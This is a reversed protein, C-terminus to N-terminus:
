AIGCVVLQKTSSQTFAARDYSGFRQRVILKAEDLLEDIESAVYQRMPVHIEAIAAGVREGQEVLRWTLALIRAQEDYVGSEWVELARGRTDIFSRVAHAPPYSRLHDPNPQYIDFAFLSNGHMRQRVGHFVRLLDASAVVNQLTNYCSMIFDFAGPMDISRVDGCIWEIRPERQRAVALMNKSLDIGVVRAERGRRAWLNHAVPITITGTGCGLDLVSDVHAGVLGAFFAKEATRDLDCLDWYEAFPDYSVPEPESAAMRM